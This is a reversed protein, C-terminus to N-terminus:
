DQSFQSSTDQLHHRNAKNQPSIVQEKLPSTARIRILVGLHCSFSWSTPSCGPAPDM